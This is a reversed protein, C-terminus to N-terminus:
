RTVPLVRRAPSNHTFQEASFSGSEDWYYITGQEAYDGGDFSRRSAAAMDPTGKVSGDHFDRPESISQRM